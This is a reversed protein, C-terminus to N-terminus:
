DSFVPLPAMVVAMIDVNAAILKKQDHADGRALVSRRPEISLVTASNEKESQWLVTDGVVPLAQNRHLQCQFVQGNAAEVAVSNGFYSIVLGRQANIPTQEQQKRM